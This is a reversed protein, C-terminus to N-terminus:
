RKHTHARKKREYIYMNITLFCHSQIDNQMYVDYTVVNEKENIIKLYNKSESM